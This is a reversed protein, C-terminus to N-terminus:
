DTNKKYCCSQVRKTRYLKTLNQFLHSVSSRTNQEGDMLWRRLDKVSKVMDDQHILSTDHILSGDSFYWGVKALASM